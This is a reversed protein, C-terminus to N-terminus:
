HLKHINTFCDRVLVCSRDTEEIKRMFNAFNVFESMTPRVADERFDSIVSSEKM